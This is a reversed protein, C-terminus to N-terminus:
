YAPVCERSSANVVPREVSKCGAVEYYRHRNRRQFMRAVPYPSSARHEAHLVVLFCKSQVILGISWVFVQTVKLLMSLSLTLIWSNPIFIYVFSICIKLTSTHCIFFCLNPLFLIFLILFALIMKDISRDIVRDMSEIMM